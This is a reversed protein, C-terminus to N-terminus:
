RVIGKRREIARYLTVKSVGTFKQIEKVTHQRSDYLKLAKDVAKRPRGDVRYGPFFQRLCRTTLYLM